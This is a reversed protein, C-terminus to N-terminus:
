IRTNVATRLNPNNKFKENAKQSLAYGFYLGLVAFVMHALAEFGFLPWYGFFTNTQPFLGLIAAAGMVFFVVRSFLISRPLSNGKLNAAWIGAVGFIVLLVKNVINMPFLNLFNGYSQNLNLVPLGDLSGVLNPILSVVGMGLMVIGGYLAFKRPNM